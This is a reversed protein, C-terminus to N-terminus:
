TGNEKLHTEWGKCGFDYKTDVWGTTNDPFLRVPYDDPLAPSAIIHHCKGHKRKEDSTTVAYKRDGNWWRCTLCRPQTLRRDVEIAAAIADVEDTGFVPSPAEDTWHPTM